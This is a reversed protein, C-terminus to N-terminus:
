TGVLPRWSSTRWRPAQWWAVWFPPPSRCRGWGSPRRRAVPAARPLSGTPGNMQIVWGLDKPAAFLDHAVHAGVEARLQPLEVAFAIVDVQEHVVRGLGGDGWEYAGELTDGGPAQPLLEGAVDARVQPTLM